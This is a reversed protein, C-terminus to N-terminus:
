SAEQESDPRIGEVEFLPVSQPCAKNFVALNGRCPESLQACVGSTQWDPCPPRLGLIRVDKLTKKMVYVLRNNDGPDTPCLFFGPRTIYHITNAIFGERVEGDLFELRLWIRPLVPTRSHFHLAKHSLDGEFSNVCFIAKVHDMSVEEFSSAGLRRIRITNRLFDCDSFLSGINSDGDEYEMYGKILESDLRIVVKIYGRSTQHHTMELREKASEPQITQNQVVPGQLKHALKRSSSEPEM